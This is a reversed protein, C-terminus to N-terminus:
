IEKNIENNDKIYIKPIFQLLTHILVFPFGIISIIGYGLMWFCEKLDKLYNQRGSYNYHKLIIIKNNEYLTYKCDAWLKCSKLNVKKFM